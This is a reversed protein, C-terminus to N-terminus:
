WELSSRRGWRAPEGVPLVLLAAVAVQTVRLAAGWRPTLARDLFAYAILLQPLFAAYVQAFGTLAPM